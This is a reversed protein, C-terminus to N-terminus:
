VVVRRDSDPPHALMQRTSADLEGLRRLFVAVIRDQLDADALQRLVHRSVSTTHRAVDQELERILTQKDRILTRNWEQRADEVEERARRLHDIRWSEVERANEAVLEERSNALDEIKETYELERRNAGDEAAVAADHRAVVRAERQDMADIIPGYLFKKMLWVLILFNIIQATFTFWDISM